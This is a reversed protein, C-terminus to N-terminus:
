RVVSAEKRRECQANAKILIASRIASLQENKLPWHRLAAVEGPSYARADAPASGDGLGFVVFNMVKALLEDDMNAFAVNPLRVLYERGAQTCLYRGVFGRLQPIDQRSSVGQIGHCGGCSELYHSQAPSMQTMPPVPGTPAPPGAVAEVLALAAVGIGVCFCESLVRM